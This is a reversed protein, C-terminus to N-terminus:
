QKKSQKKKSKEEESETDDAVTVETRHHILLHIVLHVFRLLIELGIVFIFYYIIINSMEMVRTSTAAMGEYTFFSLDALAYGFLTFPV